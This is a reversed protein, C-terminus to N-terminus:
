AAARRTRARDVRVDRDIDPVADTVSALLWGEGTKM